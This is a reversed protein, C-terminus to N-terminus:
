FEDDAPDPRSLERGLLMLVVIIAFLLFTQALLLASVLRSSTHHIAVAGLGSCLNVLLIFRVAGPATLGLKMLRHHFHDKGTYEIWQRFTRVAGRRVRSLTTYVMDFIPIGLILVPSALAVLTYRAAQSEMVALGALMFGIFTAGGDGPFVRAPKWNYPLFGLCAGSLASSAYALHKQKEPWAISLFLAACLAGMGGALGDIGDLFAFANTGGVLSFVTLGIDLVRKGPVDPACNLCVGSAIAIGAAALQGWLRFAASLGKSDEWVGIAYIVTGAAALGVLPQSWQNNRLLTFATAGFVALGGLRPTAATHVKRPDPLDMVMYRVALYISVPVLLTSSFFSVLILYFGRLNQDWTWASIWGEPLFVLLAVLCISFRFAGRNGLSESISFDVGTM